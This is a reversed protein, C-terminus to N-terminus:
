REGPSRREPLAQPGRTLVVVLWAVGVLAALAVVPLMAIGVVPFLLLALLGVVVAIVVLVIM